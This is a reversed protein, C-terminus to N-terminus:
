ACSLHLHACKSVRHSRIYLPMTIHRLITFCAHMPKYMGHVSDATPTDLNAEQVYM